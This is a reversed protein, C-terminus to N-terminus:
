TTLTTPNPIVPVLVFQRKCACNLEGAAVTGLCGEISGWHGSTDHKCEPCEEMRYPTKLLNRFAVCTPLLCEEIPSAPHTDIHIKKVLNSVNHILVGMQAAQDVYDTQVKALASELESIRLAAVDASTTQPGIDMSSGNEGVM